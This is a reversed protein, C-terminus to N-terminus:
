SRDKATKRFDPRKRDELKGTKEPGTGTWDRDKALGLVPSGFVLLRRTHAEPLSFRLLEISLGRRCFALPRKYFAVVLERDLFLLFPRQGFSPDVFEVKPV